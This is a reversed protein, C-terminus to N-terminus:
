NLFIKEEYLYLGSITKFEIKVAASGFLKPSGRDEAIVILDISKM